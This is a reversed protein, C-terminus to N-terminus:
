SYVALVLIKLTGFNHLKLLKGELDGSLPILTPRLKESAESHEESSAQSLNTSNDEMELAVSSGSSDSESRRSGSYGSDSSNGGHEEHDSSEEKGM